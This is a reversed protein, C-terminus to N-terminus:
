QDDGKTNLYERITELAFDSVSMDRRNAEMLLETYDYTDLQVTVSVESMRWGKGYGILLM